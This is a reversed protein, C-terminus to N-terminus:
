FYNPTATLLFKSNAPSTSSTLGMSSSRVYKVFFVGGILVAVVLAIIGFIYFFNKAETKTSSENEFNEKKNVPNNVAM